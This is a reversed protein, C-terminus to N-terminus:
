FERTIKTQIGESVFQQVNEKNELKLWGKLCMLEKLTNPSMSQRKCTLIDTGSSFLREVAVGAGPIALYDKAMKSLYPFEDSHM